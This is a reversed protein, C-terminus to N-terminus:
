LRYGLDTVVKIDNGFEDIMFETKQVTQYIEGRSNMHNVVKLIPPKDPNIDAEIYGEGEIYM